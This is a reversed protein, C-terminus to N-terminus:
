RQPWEARRASTRWKQLQGGVKDFYAPADTASRGCARQRPGRGSEPGRPVRQALQSPASALWARAQGERQVSRPEPDHALGCRAPRSGAWGCPSAARRSQGSRRPSTLFCQSVAAPEDDVVNYIGPAGGEIAALTAAVADEVHVFSWHAAGDGVVPFRRRRVLDAHQGGAAISTGPGYLAGYRLVLGEIGDASTVASELHRIAELTRSMAQPPSPDLPDGGETKVWGGERAYPWGAFSQAVFRRTGSQRAAALLADTGETRLRNTLEFDRDFRRLNGGMESLATMQHVVVDPRVASVAEMVAEPSLGDAVAPDAGLERLADAKAPTRTLATM